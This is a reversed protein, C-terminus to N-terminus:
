NLGINSSCHLQRYLKTPYVLSELDVLDFLPQFRFFPLFSRSMPVSAPFHLLWAQKVYDRVLDLAFDEPDMQRRTKHFSRFLYLGVEMMLIRSNATWCLDAFSDVPILNV